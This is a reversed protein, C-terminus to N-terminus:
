RYVMIDTSTHDEGTHNQCLAFWFRDLGVIHGRRLYWTWKDSLTAQQLGKKIKALRWDGIALRWDGIALRWDGIAM